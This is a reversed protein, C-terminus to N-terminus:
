EHPAVRGRDAPTRLRELASRLWRPSWWNWEGLLTMFAPLLLGRIVIVDLAIAVMMGVGIEKVAVLGGVVFGMFVIIMCLAAATVVPGSGRIGDIVARDNAGTARWRETIRSLLFVEYDMTLGFIFVFLLVPTTLDLGGWSQFGLLWAGWGHQFVVVLVGLTAALTLANMVLAKAPIVLSGTLRYLLVTGTVLLGVIVWPLRRALSERYDVLEAAPGTVLTEFPPSLARIDQVLSRAAPGDNPGATVLDIVTTGPPIDRRLELQVVDDHGNLANLYDRMAPTDASARALVTVPVAAAAAFDRQLAEYARRAEASAPLSRVDSNAFNAGLLPLALLLLGATAALAVVPARRQAIAALRGLPGGDARPRGRRDVRRPARRPPIREGAAAILAPVLTLACLTAIVAVIAGGAAMASLLPEALISLSAFAAVVALGSVLVARGASSVAAVLAAEPGVFEREERYRYLLLLSYDIALGVGLLTVVNVTYESVSTAISLGTLGALTAAVTIVAAALPVSAAVLGVLLILAVAVLVTAISEGITADKIAQDAFAREAVSAGGVLVEPAGIRHLADTVQSEVLERDRAPLLDNIEVSVLTSRNDAGIQGRGTYLDNVEVVGQIQRLEATVETVSNVLEPDYPDGGRVVAFVVTGQPALQDISREAVVSEADPGLADVTSLRDFLSGATAAGAVFLVGWTAIIVWRWRHAFRGLGSLM